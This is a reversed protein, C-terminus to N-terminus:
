CSGHFSNTLRQYPKPLDNTCVQRGGAPHLITIFFSLLKSERKISYIPSTTHRRSPRRSHSTLKILSGSVKQVM